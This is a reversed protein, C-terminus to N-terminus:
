PTLNPDVGNFDRDIVFQRYAQLKEGLSERGLLTQFLNHRRRTRDRELYGELAQNGQFTPEVWDVDIAGLTDAELLIVEDMKHIKDLNDHVSVLHCIQHIQKKNFFPTTLSEFFNGVMKAGVAMHKAKRDSIEALGPDEAFEGYYGIDHFLAATVLVSVDVPPGNEIARETVRRNYDTSLHFAWHVVAQTHPVDFDPRGQKLYKFAYNSALTWLQQPYGFEIIQHSLNEWSERGPTKGREPTM